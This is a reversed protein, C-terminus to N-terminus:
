RRNPLFGANPSSLDFMRELAEMNQLVEKIEEPDDSQTRLSVMPGHLLRNVLSKSLDEFARRQKATMSDEGGAKRLARDIETGRTNEAMQRLAKITPVAELSDRWSNFSNLEESLIVKADNAAKQRAAKNAAVVEKLDDVNFVHNGEIDSVDQAINRPVSIDFFRRVNGVSDPRTLMDKVDDQVILLEQSGSAAFIVDSEAIVEMLDPMLRATINFEPFQQQLEEVRGMSRNVITAGYCGKSILHKVLLTSM